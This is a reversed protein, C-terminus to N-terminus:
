KEEKIIFQLIPYQKKLFEIQKCPENNKLAVCGGSPIWYPCNPGCKNILIEVLNIPM